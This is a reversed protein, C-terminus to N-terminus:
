DVDKNIKDIIEGPFFGPLVIFGNKRWQFLMEKSEPALLDDSRIKEIVGAEDKDDLWPLVQPLQSFDSSSISSFISKRIGYKRYPIANHQLKEKNLFNYAVQLIKFDRLHSLLRAM